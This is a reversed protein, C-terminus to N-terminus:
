IEIKFDMNVENAPIGGRVGWNEMEVENLVIFVSEKNINLMASVKSVLELYLQKKSEISRGKFLTIDVIVKYPKKMSFAYSPYEILRINRDDDPLQLCAVICDMVVTQLTILKEVDYGQALEIKTLPM